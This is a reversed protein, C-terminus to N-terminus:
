LKLSSVPWLISLDARFVDLYWVCRFAIFLSIFRDWAQIEGLEIQEIHRNYPCPGMIAPSVCPKLSLFLLPDLGAMHLWLGGLPAEPIFMWACPFFGTHSSRCSHPHSTDPSTLSPFLLGCLGEYTWALTRSKTGLSFSGKSPELFPFLLRSQM